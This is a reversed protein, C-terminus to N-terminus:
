ALGQRFAAMAEEVSRHITFVQTFGTITFVEQVPPQLACLRLEGGQALLAKRVLLLARLGSSSLFHVQALDLLVQRAGADIAAQVQAIAPGTSVADLRGQLAFVQVPVPLRDLHKTMTLVNGHHDDFAFHVSDMLKHMLYLGLGGVQREDLPSTIDPTPVDEPRFPQGHDRLMVVLDGGAVSWSVAIVGSDSEGYSYQIINTAAEDIALQVQWAAHESLGVCQTAQHIFASIPALSELTAPVTMTEM